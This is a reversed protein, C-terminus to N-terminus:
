MSNLSPGTPESLSDKLNAFLTSAPPIAPRSEPPNLNGFPGRVEPAFRWLAPALFQAPVMEQGRGGQCAREPSITQCSNSPAGCPSGLRATNRPPTQHPSALAPPDQRYRLIHQSPGNGSGGFLLSIATAPKM